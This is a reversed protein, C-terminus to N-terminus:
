EIKMALVKDIVVDKKLASMFLYHEIPNYPTNPQFLLQTVFPTAGVKVSVTLIVKSEPSIDQTRAIKLYLLNHDKQPLVDIESILPMNEFAINQFIINDKNPINNEFFGEEGYFKKRWKEDTKRNPLKDAFHENIFHALKYTAVLSGHYTMHQNQATTNEFCEPTFLLTDYPALGLLCLFFVIDGAFFYKAAERQKQRDVM